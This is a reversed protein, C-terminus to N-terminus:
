LSAFEVLFMILQYSYIQYICLTCNQTSFTFDFLIEECSPCILTVEPILHMTALTRSSQKNHPSSPVFSSSKELLLPFQALVEFM